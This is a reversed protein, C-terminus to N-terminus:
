ALPIYTSFIKQWEEGAHYPMQDSEYQCAKVARAYASEARSKWSDGLYMMEYTGPAYLYTNAKSILFRLFDRVMWDYYVSSEGKHAWSQLFETALLEIHFSKLPVLCVKQWCKMMRILASTNGNTNTDSAKIQAIEEKPDITKYKGGGNTDCIWYKGNTLRFSPVVEVKFSAFPIVVVQGDGSMTTNTYTKELVAKIEQLLGSQKNGIRQEYRHYVSDPLQFLVDIDRPPRVRTGKGWSGVLFSNDTDSNTGWYAKNLCQRVGRHKVTGDDRQDQTLLLNGILKNFREAVTMLAITRRFVRFVLRSYRDLEPLNSHTNM